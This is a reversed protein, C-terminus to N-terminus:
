FLSYRHSKREAILKARKISKIIIFTTILTLSLNIILLIILLSSRISTNYKDKWQIRTFNSLIPWHISSISSLNRNFIVNNIPIKRYSTMNILTRCAGSYCAHGLCRGTSSVATLECINSYRTECCSFNCPHFTTNTLSITHNSITENTNCQYLHVNIFSNNQVVSTETIMFFQYFVFCLLVFQFQM